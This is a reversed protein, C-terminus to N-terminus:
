YLIAPLPFAARKAYAPLRAPHFYVQVHINGVEGPRSLTCYTACISFPILFSLNAAKQYFLTV